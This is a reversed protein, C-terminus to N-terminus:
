AGNQNSDGKRKNFEHTNNINSLIKQLEIWIADMYDSQMNQNIDQMAAMVQLDLRLKLFILKEIKRMRLLKLSLDEDQEEDQKAQLMQEQMQQQQQM